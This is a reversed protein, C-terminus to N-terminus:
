PRFEGKAVSQLFRELLAILNEFDDLNMLAAGSHIYRCPLSIACVPVGGRGLAIARADTGGSALRKFQYAIGNEVAVQQLHDSVRRDPLSAGDMLYLVPGNGLTAVTSDPDTGAVDAAATADIAVALDPNLNYAAARAGRLGVEEQVTFAGFLTISPDDFRKLLEALVACGARDDFAKGKVVKAGFREFDTAFCVPDGLEVGMAEVEARHRCGLDVLMQAIPMPKSREEASVLHTAKAGIVGPIRRYTVRVERGPIVRDDVSGVKKLKLFGEDTIGGVCFGVEDMHADIMVRYPGSGKRALLNGMVDTWTEDVQGELDSRILDRVEEERGPIGCAQSLRELLM